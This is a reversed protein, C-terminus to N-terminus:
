TRSSSALSQQRYRQNTLTRLLVEHLASLDVPKILFQEAGEHIAREALDLSSQGALVIVPINSETSKIRQLLHLADGNPFTFDLIAADPRFKEFQVHADHSNAAQAVIHGRQTLFDCIGSRLVPDTDIVLIKNRSL